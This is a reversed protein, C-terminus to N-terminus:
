KERLINLYNALMAKDTLNAQNTGDAWAVSGAEKVQVKSRYAQILGYLFNDSDCILPM